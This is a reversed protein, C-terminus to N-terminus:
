LRMQHVVWKEQSLRDQGRATALLLAPVALVTGLATPAWLPVIAARAGIEGWPENEVAFGWRGHRTTNAFYMPWPETPRYANLEVHVAPPDDSARHVTWCRRCYVLTGRGSILGHRAYSWATGERHALDIRLEDSVSYSRVWFMGALLLPILLLLAFFNLLFRM